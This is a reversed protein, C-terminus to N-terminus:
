ANKGREKERLRRRATEEVPEAGRPVHVDQLARGHIIWVNQRTYHLAEAIQGWTWGNLYYYKLVDRRTQDAVAEIAAEIRRLAEAYVDARIQMERSLDAMKVAYEEVSSVRRTTGGPGQRYHATCSQALDEYHRRREELAEMRTRMGRAQLLYEKPTMM